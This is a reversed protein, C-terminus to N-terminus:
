VPYSSSIHVCGFTVVEQGYKALGSNAATERRKQTKNGGCNLMHSKYPSRTGHRYHACPIQRCRHIITRGYGRGLRRLASDSSVNTITWSYLQNNIEKQGSGAFSRYTGGRNPCRKQKFIVQCGSGM